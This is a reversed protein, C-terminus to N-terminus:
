ANDDKLALYKPHEQLFVNFEKFFLQLAHYEDTSHLLLISRWNHTYINYKREIWHEFKSMVESFLRLQDKEELGHYWGHLYAILCSIYSKSIYPSPQEEINRILQVINM